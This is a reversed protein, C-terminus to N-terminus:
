VRCGDVESLLGTTNLKVHHVTAKGAIMAAAAGTIGAATSM